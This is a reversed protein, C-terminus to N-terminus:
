SHRKGSEQERECDASKLIRSLNLAEDYDDMRYPKLGHCLMFNSVSGWGSRIEGSSLRTPDSADCLHLAAVREMHGDSAM